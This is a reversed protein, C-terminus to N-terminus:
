DIGADTGPAELDVLIRGGVGRGNRDEGDREGGEEAIEWGALDVEELDVDFAGFFFEEFVGVGPDGGDVGYDDFEVVAVFGAAAAGEVTGRIFEGIFLM